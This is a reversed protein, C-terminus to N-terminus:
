RQNPQNGMQQFPDNFLGGMGGAGFINDFFDGFQNGGFVENFIDQPFLNQPNQFSHGM